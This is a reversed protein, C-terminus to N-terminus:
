HDQCRHGLRDGRWGRGSGRGEDCAGDGHHGGLHQGQREVSAALGRQATGILSVPPWNFLSALVLLASLVTGVVFERRLWGARGLDDRKRKVYRVLARWNFAVHVFCALAFLISLSTHFDGWERTTLAWLDWRGRGTGHPPALYLVVGSVLMTLFLLASVISTLARYRFGGAPKTERDNM